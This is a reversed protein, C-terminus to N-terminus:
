NTQGQGLVQGVYNLRPLLNIKKMGEESGCLKLATLSLALSSFRTSKTTFFRINM